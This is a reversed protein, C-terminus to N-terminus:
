WFFEALLLTRTRVPGPRRRPDAYVAQAPLPPYGTAYQHSAAPRHRRIPHADHSWPGPPCRTRQSGDVRRHHPEDPDYKGGSEEIIERLFPNPCATYHPPDSLAIIAEDTAIPFGEIHRVKNIDAITLERHERPPASYTESSEFLNHQTTM